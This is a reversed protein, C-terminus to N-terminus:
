SGTSPPAAEPDTEGGGTVGEAPASNPDPEVVVAAAAAAAAAAEEEFKKKYMARITAHDEDSMEDYAWRGCLTQMGNFKMSPDKFFAVDTVRYSCKNDEDNEGEGSTLDLRSDETLSKFISEDGELKITKVRDSPLYMCSMTQRGVVIGDVITDEDERDCFHAIIDKGGNKLEITVHKELTDKTGTVTQTANQLINDATEYISSQLIGDKICLAEVKGSLDQNKLGLFCKKKKSCSEKHFAINAEIRKLKSQQISCAKYSGKQNRDGPVFLSNTEAHLYNDTKESYCVSAKENDPVATRGDENKARWMTPHSLPSDFKCLEGPFRLRGQGSDEDGCKGDNGINQNCCNGERDVKDNKCCRNRYNLDCSPKCEHTVPDEECKYKKEELYYYAAGGGGLAGAAVGALFSAM